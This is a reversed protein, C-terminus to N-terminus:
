QRIVKMVMVGPKLGNGRWFDITVTGPKVATLDIGTHSSKNVHIVGSPSQAVVTVGTVNASQPGTDETFQVRDGVQITMTGPSDFFKQRGIHFVLWGHNTSFYGINYTTSKPPTTTHSASAVLPTAVVCSVAIAIGATYLRLSRMSKDGEGIPCKGYKSAEFWVNTVFTNIIEQYNRPVIDM